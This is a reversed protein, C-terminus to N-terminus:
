IKIRGNNYKRQTSLLVTEYLRNKQADVVYTIVNPVAEALEALNRPILGRIYMSSRSHYRQHYRSAPTIYHSATTVSVM